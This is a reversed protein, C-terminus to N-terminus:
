MKRYLFAYNWEPHFSHRIINLKDMEEDQVKEGLKYEFTNIEANIKLGSSTTTNAILNVIVEFSTLPKGRWNM